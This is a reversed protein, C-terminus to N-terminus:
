KGDGLDCDGEGDGKAEDDAGAADAFDAESVAVVHAAPLGDEWAAERTAALGKFDAETAAGGIFDAENAAIGDAAVPLCDEEANDTVNGAPAGGMMGGVIGGTIGALEEDRACTVATDKLV